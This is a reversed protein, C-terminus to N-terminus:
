GINNAGLFIGIYRNYKLLLSLQKQQETVLNHEDRQLEM